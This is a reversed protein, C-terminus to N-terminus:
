PVRFHKKESAPYTPDAVLKGSPIGSVDIVKNNFPSFVMGPKGPVKMATPTSAPKEKPKVVEGDGAPALDNRGSNDGPGATQGDGGNANRDAEAREKMRERKEKIRAQEAPDAPDANRRAAPDGGPPM